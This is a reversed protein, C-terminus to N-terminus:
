QLAETGAALYRPLAPLLVALPPVNSGLLKSSQRPEDKPRPGRVAGTPGPADPSCLRARGRTLSRGGAGAPFLAGPWVFSM